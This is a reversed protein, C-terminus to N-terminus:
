NHVVYVVCTTRMLRSITDFLSQTFYNARSYFSLAFGHVNHVHLNRIVFFFPLFNIEIQPTTTSFHTTAAYSNAWVTMVTQMTAIKHDFLFYLIEAHIFRNLQKDKELHTLYSIAVIFHYYSQAKFGCM